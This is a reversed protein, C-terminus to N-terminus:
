PRVTHAQAYVYKANFNVKIRFRRCLAVAIAASAAAIDDVPNCFRGTYWITLIYQRYCSKKRTQTMKMRNCKSCCKWRLFFVFRVCVFGDECLLKIAEHVLVRNFNLSVFIHVLQKGQKGWGLWFSTIFTSSCISIILKYSWLFWFVCVCVCVSLWM